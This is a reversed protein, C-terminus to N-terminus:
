LVFENLNKDIKSHTDPNYYNIWNDYIKSSFQSEYGGM